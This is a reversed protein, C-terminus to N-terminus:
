PCFLISAVAEGIEGSIESSTSRFRTRIITMDHLASFPVMFEDSWYSSLFEDM